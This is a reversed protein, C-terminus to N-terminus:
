SINHSEPLAAISEWTNLCMIAHDRCVYVVTELLGDHSEVQWNIVGYANGDCFHCDIGELGNAMPESM